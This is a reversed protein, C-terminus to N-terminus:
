ECLEQLKRLHVTEEKGELHAYLTSNVLAFWGEKPQELNLGGKYQLRGLRQFDHSLLGEATPPLFSQPFSVGPLTM